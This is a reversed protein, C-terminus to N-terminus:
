KKKDAKHDPYKKKVADVSNKVLEERVDIDVDALKKHVFLGQPKINELKALLKASGPM